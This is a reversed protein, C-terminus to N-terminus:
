TEQAKMTWYKKLRELWCEWYHQCTASNMFHVTAPEGGPYIVVVMANSLKDIGKSSLFHSRNIAGLYAALQIPNDYTNSLLPRKKSSTKWEIVCLTNRYAAICDFKGKYFLEPHIVDQEQDVVQGIETLVHQVSKWHGENEAMLDINQGLLQNRICDHTNIGKLLTDQQYKQFREEGMKQIMKKKWKELAAANEWSQTKNLILNVAPLTTLSLKEVYDKLLQHQALDVEPEPFLPSQSIIKLPDDAIFETCTVNKDTIQLETTTELKNTMRSSTSKQNNASSVANNEEKNLIEQESTVNVDQSKRATQKKVIPGFLQLNEKNWKLVIKAKESKTAYTRTM